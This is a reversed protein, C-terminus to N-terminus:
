ATMGEMFEDEEIDREHEDWFAYFECWMEDCTMVDEYPVFRIAYESMNPNVYSEYVFAYGRKCALVFNDLLCGEFYAGTHEARNQHMWKGMNRVTFKRM